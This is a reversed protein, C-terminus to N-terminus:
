DEGRLPSSQPERELGFKKLRYRLTNRSIDLLKAARSQNGRTIKLAERILSKEVKELAIGEPPLHIELKDPEEELHLPLSQPLLTDESSLIVAREIVNEVERANGPWSYNMLVDMAEPSVGKINKGSERNFKQLFYNVLLPVDEKHERLPPIKISVVNLRYYLDERLSGDELAKKVDRNTAAIVRVDIKITKVGGVREFEKEQLVRLLKVQLMPSLEIIEDLFITGGNALEFKGPKNAVADTFAGKVHGFLESELLGEPFAACNVHIFPKEKRSSNFHLARAVLTKGTGTEGQILVTAKTNAVERLIKYVGQIQPSKGIINDLKYKEELEGRLYRNERVLSKMKLANAIIIKMEDKEFPKLLYDHAGEKMAKVATEVTGYATVMIVPIEEDSERIRKLLDIGSLGPMKMDTLVLDFNEKEAKQLAERGDKATVAEYGEKQLIIQLVRRMKAEDDVVLIKGKPM